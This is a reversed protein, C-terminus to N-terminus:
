HCRTVHCRTVWDQRQHMLGGQLGALVGVAEREQVRDSHDLATEGAENSNAGSRGVCCSRGCRRGATGQGCGWGGGFCRGRTAADEFGPDGTQVIRFMGYVRERLGM